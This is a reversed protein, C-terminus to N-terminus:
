PECDVSTMPIWSLLSYETSLAGISGSIILTTQLAILGRASGFLVCQAQVDLYLM